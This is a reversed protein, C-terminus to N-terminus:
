AWMVIASNVLLLLGTAAILARVLHRHIKDMQPTSKIDSDYDHFETLMTVGGNSNRNIHAGAYTGTRQGNSCPVM